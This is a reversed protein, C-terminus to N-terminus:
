TSEPFIPWGVEGAVQSEESTRPLVPCVEVRNRGNRKALYMAQDASQVLEIDANASHLPDVISGGVSVTPRAVLRKGVRLGDCPLVDDLVLM